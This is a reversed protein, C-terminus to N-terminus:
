TAGPERLTEEDLVNERDLEAGAAEVLRATPHALPGQMMVPVQIEEALRRHEAESAAKSEASMGARLQEFNHSAM